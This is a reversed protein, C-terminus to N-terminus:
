ARGVFPQGVKQGSLKLSRNLLDRERMKVGARDALLSEFFQRAAIFYQDGTQAHQAIGDRRATREPV